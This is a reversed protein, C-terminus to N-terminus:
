LYGNFSTKSYNRQLRFSLPSHVPKDMDGHLVFVCKLLFIDPANSRAVCSSIRKEYANTALIVYFPSHEYEVSTSVRNAFNPLVVPLFLDYFPVPLIITTQKVDRVM